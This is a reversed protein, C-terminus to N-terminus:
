HNAQIHNLMQEDVTNFIDVGGPLIPGGWGNLSSLNVPIIIPDLDPRQPDFVVNRTVNNGYGHTTVIWSGDPLQSITRNVRGDYLIHTPKTTNTTTWGNNSVDVVIAGLSGMSINTGPWSVSYSNGSIVPGDLPKQGPYAFLLLYYQMEELTCHLYAPCVPNTTTYEHWGPCDPSYVGQQGCAPPDGGGGPSPNPMLLGGGGGGSGGNNGGGGGGSGGGCAAPHTTCYNTNSPPTYGGGEGGCFACMMHGTPDTYRLPNNTVYSFRNLNQPNAYGPVITDPSLFRGLKPSYFRAGFHYIGLGTMERQGTFLKDTYITGTMLRTEGFPYYRQEGVTAGSTNTVVSASGLHDKLTYYLTSDIRMAGAVPYYTVTRTVSGGSTKDVEYVGGVYLTKSGDPKVKKVLNGDGDYVFQTMQANVTVSILRNEADFAQTYTSGGETRTIM